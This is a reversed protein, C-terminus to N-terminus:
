GKLVKFGLLVHQGDLIESNLLELKAAQNLTRFLTFATKGVIEASVLLQVEDALGQELLVSALVGGTDTLVTKIGYQSNLEDIAARLDVHDKGTQIIDYNREKLYDMYAKPTSESVLVIINKAYESRRNVHMLGQMIGRSDALVWVPRKDDAAITPKVFDKPEEAPITQMFMEIGTKSTISGVLFADAGFKATIMYHLPINIDFDKIAGDVSVSDYIIVKPLM